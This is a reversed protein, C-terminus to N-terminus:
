QTDRIFTRIHDAALEPVEEQYFHGAFPMIIFRRSGAIDQYLRWAWSTSLYHDEGAWLVMTPRDFKGFLKATEVTYRCDAALVFRRFQEFRERSGSGFKLYERIAFDSMNRKNFVGLRLGMPSQGWIYSLHLSHMLGALFDSKLVKIMYSADPVPWNDYCVCNTLIFRRVRDPHHMAIWQATAGGIDHCVLTFETLGLFNCIELIKDAQAEPDYRHSLPTETDGLGMLDPAILRFDPSLVRIMNRWLYSSTPIGHVMVVPEGRGEDLYAVRVGSLDAVKKELPRDKEEMPYGKVYLNPPESRLAPEGLLIGAAYSLCQWFGEGSHQTFRARQALVV